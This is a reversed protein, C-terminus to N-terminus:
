HSDFLPHGKTEERIAAVLAQGLAKNGKENYHAGDPLRGSRDISAFRVANVFPVGRSSAIRALTGTYPEVDNVLFLILPSGGAEEKMREILVETVSAAERFAPLSEGKRSIEHEITPLEGKRAREATKEEWRTEFRYALRSYSILPELFWGYNRPFKVMIEGNELYPRPAPARQLLSARDLEFYNNLIDNTCLQVVILQPSFGRSVYGKLALLEQLTGYGPGAYATVTSGPVAEWLGAYWMNEPPVGMGDTFSDGLVLVEPGGPAGQLIKEQGKWGLNSDWQDGPHELLPTGKRVLHVVRLGAELFVLPIVAGALAFTLHLLVRRFSRM